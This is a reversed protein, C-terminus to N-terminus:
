RRTRTAADGRAMARSLRRQRWVFWVIIAIAAGLLAFTTQTLGQHLEVLGNLLCLTGAGALLLSPWDM